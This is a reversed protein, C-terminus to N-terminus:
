SFLPFLPSLEEKCFFRLWYINFSHSVSLLHDGSFDCHPKGPLGTTLSWAVLAPPRPKVRPWSVLDWMGCSLIQMGCSVTLMSFCLGLAALYIILFGLMVTIVAVPLVWQNINFNTPLLKLAFLINVYDWFYSVWFLLKLLSFLLKVPNFCCIGRWGYM